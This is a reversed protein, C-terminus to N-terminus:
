PSATSDVLLSGTAYHNSIHNQTILM